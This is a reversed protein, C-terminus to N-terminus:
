ESVLASSNRIRGGMAFFVVRRDWEAALVRSVLVTM